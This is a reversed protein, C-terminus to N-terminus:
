KLNIMLIKIFIIRMDRTEGNLSTSIKGSELDLENSEVILEKIKM